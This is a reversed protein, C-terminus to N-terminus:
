KYVDQTRRTQGPKAIGGRLYRGDIIGIEHKRLIDKGNTRTLRDFFRRLLHYELLRAM